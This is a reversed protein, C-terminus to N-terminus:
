GHLMSKIVTQIKDDRSQFGKKNLYANYKNLNHHDDDIETIFKDEHSTTENVDRIITKKYNTNVISMAKTFISPNKGSIIFYNDLINLEDDIFLINKFYKSRKENLKYMNDIIITTNDRNYALEKDKDSQNTDKKDSQNTDKQKEVISKGERLFYPDIYIRYIKIGNETTDHERKFLIHYFHRNNYTQNFIQIQKDTFGCHSMGSGVSFCKKQFEKNKTWFTDDDYEMLAYQAMVCGESHGCFIYKPKNDKQLFTLIANRTKFSYYTKQIETPNSLHIISGPPFTIYYEEDKNEYVVIYKKNNTGVFNDNTDNTYIIYKVHFVYGYPNVNINDTVNNTYVYLNNDPNIPKNTGDMNWINKQGIICIGVEPKAEDPTKWECINDTTKEGTTTVCTVQKSDTKPNTNDNIKFCKEATTEDGQNMIITPPLSRKETNQTPNKEFKNIKDNINITLNIIGIYNLYIRSLETADATNDGGQKQVGGWKRMQKKNKQTIRRKNRKRKHLSIKINM